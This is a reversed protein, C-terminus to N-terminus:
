FGQTYVASNKYWKRLLRWCAGGITAIPLALIIGVIGKVGGGILVAMLVLLPHLGTRSGVLYPTLVLSELINGGCYVLAISTVYPWQGSEVVGIMCASFLSIFFGVYPIFVLFGSIVAMPLAGPLHLLGALFLTYYVMLLGVVRVQGSFYQRLARDMDRVCLTVISRYTTPILGYAQRRIAAGDKVLYFAVVPSLALTLLIQGLAWGNHLVYMLLSGLWQMAQRLVLDLSEQIQAGSDQFFDGLLPESFAWFAERYMNFKLSLLSSWTGLIPIVKIVSYAFIGYTIITLALASVVPTINKKGLFRHVPRYGYAMAAGLIFPSLVSACTWFVVGVLAIVSLLILIRHKKISM